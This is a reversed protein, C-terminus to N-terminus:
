KNNSPFLFLELLDKLIVDWSLSSAYKFTSNRMTLWGNFDGLIENVVLAISEPECKCLRASGLNMLTSSLESVPTMVVPLGKSLYMKVKAPDAYNSFSLPNQQYPAVGLTMSELLNQLDDHELYGHMIVSESLGLTKVLEKVKGSAPGEGVIHLEVDPYERVIKPISSILELVGQHVSLNGLFVIRRNLFNGDRVMNLGQSDIGVPIVLHHKKRELRLSKLRTVLAHENLEVHVDSYTCAIKDFLLYLMNRTRSDFRKPSYDVSWHVNVIRRFILKSYIIAFVAFHPSFSIVFNPKSYFAAKCFVFLDLCNALWLRTTFYLTRSMNRSNIELYHELKNVRDENLPGRVLDCNFGSFELQSVIEQAISRRNSGSWCVLVRGQLKPEQFQTM